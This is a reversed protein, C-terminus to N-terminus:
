SEDSPSDSESDTEFSESTADEEDCSDSSETVEYSNESDVTIRTVFVQAM